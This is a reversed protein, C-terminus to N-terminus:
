IASSERWWRGEGTKEEFRTFKELNLDHIYIGNATGVWIHDNDVQLLSLIKNSGISGDVSDDRKYIKFNIGDFRNLGDITGLWIFGSNDQIISYVMNQSLGDEVAMNRFYYVGNGSQGKASFQCTLSCILLLLLKKYGDM